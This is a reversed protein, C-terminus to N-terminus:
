PQSCPHSGISLQQEHRKGVPEGLVVKSGTVMIEGGLLLDHLIPGPFQLM